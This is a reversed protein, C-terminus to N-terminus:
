VEEEDYDNGTNWFGGDDDDDDDEESEVDDNNNNNNNNNSLTQSRKNVINIVNNSKIPTIIQNEDITNNKNTSEFSDMMSYDDDDYDNRYSYEKLGSAFAKLINEVEACTIEAENKIKLITRQDLSNSSFTDKKLEVDFTKELHTFMKDVTSGRYKGEMVQKFFSFLSEQGCVSCENDSLLLRNGCQIENQLHGSCNYTNVKENCNPCYDNIWSVKSKCSECEEEQDKGLYYMLYARATIQFQKRLTVNDLRKCIEENKNDKEMNPSFNDLISLCNNCYKKGRSNKYACNPCVTYNTIDPVIVNEKSLLQFNQNEFINKTLDNSTSVDNDYSVILSNCFPCVPYVISDYTKKCDDCIM